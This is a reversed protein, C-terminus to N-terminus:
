HFLIRIKIREQPTQISNPYGIGHRKLLDLVSKHPKCDPSLEGYQFEIFRTLWWKDQGIKQIREGFAAEAEAETIEEGVFYSALEFDVKWVGANDCQCRMYEWLCKLKPPLRRFWPDSYLGTDTFRKVTDM